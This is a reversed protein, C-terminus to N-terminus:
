SSSLLPLSITVTTGESPASTLSISGGHEQVIWQAIALGLGSGGADRSRAEGARYFREFLHLLDEAAIGVGFDRVSVLVRDGERRASIEIPGHDGSHEIANLVVNGFARQLHDADCRVDLGSHTMSSLTLGRSQALVQMKAAVEELLEGVDRPRFHLQEQRADIRSLTLMDAVIRSM